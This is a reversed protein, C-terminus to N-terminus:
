IINWCFSSNIQDFSYLRTHAYPLRANTLRMGVFLLKSLILTHQHSRAHTRAHSYAFATRKEQKM